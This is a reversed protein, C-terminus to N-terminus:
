INLSQCSSFSWWWGRVISKVKRNGFIFRNRSNKSKWYPSFRIKKWRTFLYVVFSCRRIGYLWIAALRYIKNGAFHQIYVYLFFFVAGGNYLTMTCIAASHLLLRFEFAFRTKRSRSCMFNPPWRIFTFWRRADVENAASEIALHNQRWVNAETQYRLWVWKFVHVVGTQLYVMGNKNDDPNFHIHQPPQQQPPPVFDFVYGRNM